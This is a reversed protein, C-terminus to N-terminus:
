DLMGLNTILQFDKDSVISKLDFVNWSVIRARRQPLFNHVSLLLFSSAVLIGYMPAEGVMLLSGWRM